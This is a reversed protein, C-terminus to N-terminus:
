PGDAPTPAPAPPMAALVAAPGLLPQPGGTARLQECVRLMEPLLTALHTCGLHRAALADLTCRAAGDLLALAPLQDWAVDIALDFAHLDVQLVGDLADGLLHQLWGQFRLGEFDSDELAGAHHEDRHEAHYVAAMDQIWRLLTLSSAVLTLGLTGERQRRALEAFHSAEDASPTPLSSGLGAEPPRRAAAAAVYAAFFSPDLYLAPLHRTRLRGSSQICTEMLPPQM